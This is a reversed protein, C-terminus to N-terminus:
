IKLYQAAKTIPEDSKINTKEAQEDENDFEVNGLHMIGVVVDFIGQIEFISFGSDELSSITQSFRKAEDVKNGNFDNM